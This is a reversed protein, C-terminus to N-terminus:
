EDGSPKSTTYTEIAWRNRKACDEAWQENEFGIELPIAAPDDISDVVIIRADARRSQTPDFNRAALWERVKKQQQKQLLWFVGIILLGVIAPIRWYKKLDATVGLDPLINTLLLLGVAAVLAGIMYGFFNMRAQRGLPTPDRDFSEPDTLFDSQYCSECVRIKVTYKKDLAFRPRYLGPRKRGARLKLRHTAFFEAPTNGCRSCREPHDLILTGGVADQVTKFPVLIKVPM